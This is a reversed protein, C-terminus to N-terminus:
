CVGCVLSVPLETFCKTCVSRQLPRVDPEDSTNGHPWAMTLVSAESCDEHVYGDGSWKTGEGPTIEFNCAGCAVSGAKVTRTASM